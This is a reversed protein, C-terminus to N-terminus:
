EFIWEIMNENDNSTAADAEPLTYRKRYCYGYELSFNSSSCKSCGTASWFDCGEPAQEFKSEDNIINNMQSACRSAHEGGHKMCSDILKEACNELACYIKGNIHANYLGIVKLNASASIIIDSTVTTYGLSHWGIENLTLTGDIGSVNTGSNYFAHMGLIVNGDIVVNNIERQYSNNEFTQRDLFFDSIKANGSNDAKIYLTGNEYTYSCGAGCSGSDQFIRCNGNVPRSCEAIAASSYMICMLFVIKKM